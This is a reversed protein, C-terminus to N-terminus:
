CKYNITYYRYSIAYKYNFISMKLLPSKIKTIINLIQIIINKFKFFLICLTSFINMKPKSSIIISVGLFVVSFTSSKSAYKPLSIFLYVM